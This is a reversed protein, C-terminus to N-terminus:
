DNLADYIMLQNKSIVKEGINIGKNIYSTEGGQKFVEVERTEINKRDKFIMVYTKNKDFIIASSPIAIKTYGELYRLTITANMEPKLLYKANNLRIRVKMTKTQPDLINYIKDVHGQFLTDPYSLTKVEADMHEKIKAIDTEYVNANVWVDSIEAVTFINDTKDSRLQMDRNINKEVIFGNIPAKVAYGEKSDIGYISFIQNLRKIETQAKAVGNKAALVDRESILKSSYLEESVRQNNQALLLDNKADILEREFEAVEGSRIVALVQGKQVYDGLGVNVETVNGGVLPFIEVLKNEDAIIKGALKIQAKVPELKAENFTLRRMMTDSVEFAPAKANETNKDKCAQNFLTFCCFAM